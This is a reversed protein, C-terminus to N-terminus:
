TVQSGWSYINAGVGKAERMSSLGFAAISEGYLHWHMKRSLPSLDSYRDEEIPELPARHKSRLNAYWFCAWIGMKGLSPSLEGGGEGPAHPKCPLRLTPADGPKPTGRPGPMM